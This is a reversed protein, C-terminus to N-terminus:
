AAVADIFASVGLINMVRKFNYALVHLSMETRVKPLRKTLFHTAGMWAKLTGFPHEATDRRLRMKEPELDLRRQVAELVDEHEWRAVERHEGATCRAKLPCAACASSWYRHMLRGNSQYSKRRSLHEDAPCLYVEQAPLYRFDGRGFLGKTPNNSTEPKPLYTTIGAQECALIQEGEYYGRDAVATLAETALATKAQQAMPALQQRDSGNNIVEHAVILHHDTDIAIQVNYGVIGGGRTKMSRADPDTLSLQQDPAAQRQRELENLQDIQNELTQIKEQLRAKKVERLAPEAREASDLQSLYRDISKNIQELRRKVKAQTYNRDRNNVAKFKSGDIAVEDTTFLELRRCLEVFEGCVQRLPEGYDKRFDAITRYDPMRWGLLWMVEVNRQCEKELRRSTQTRNQYGYLYLKLMVAPHYAPRGTAKPIVGDFGLAALDLSDVFVDLARVPNDEAIFEDLTAPFCSSETRDIGEVFRKM